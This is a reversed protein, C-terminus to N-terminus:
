KQSDQNKKMKQYSKDDHEHHNMDECLSVIKEEAKPKEQKKDSM